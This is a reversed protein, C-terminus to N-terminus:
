ESGGKNRAYGAIAHMASSPLALTVPLDKATSFVNRRVMLRIRVGRKEFIVERVSGSFDRSDFQSRQFDEERLAPTAGIFPVDLIQSPTLRDAQSQIENRIVTISKAKATHRKKRAM